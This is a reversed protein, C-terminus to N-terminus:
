YYEAKAYKFTIPKVDANVATGKPVAKISGDPQIEIDLPEGSALMKELEEITPKPSDSM